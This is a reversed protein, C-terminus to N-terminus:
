SNSWSVSFQNGFLSPLSCFRGAHVVRNYHHHCEPLHGFPLSVGTALAQGHQQWPTSPMEIARHRLSVNVLAIVGRSPFHLLDFSPIM